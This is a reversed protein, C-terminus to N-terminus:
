TPKFLSGAALLFAPSYVELMTRFEFPFGFLLYLVALPVILLVARRLFLPKDQWRYAVLAAALCLVPLSMWAFLWAMENPSYFHDFLHWELPAGPNDWFAWTLWARIAGYILCQAGLLKWFQFREMREWYYLVFVVVLFVSTEKNLSTFFLGVLYPRWKAQALLALSLTFLTLQPLDYFQGKFLSFPLLLLAVVATWPSDLKPITAQALSLLALPYAALFAAIGVIMLLGEVPYSEGLDFRAITEGIWPAAIAWEGVSPPVLRTVVRVTQPLLARYVFPKHATGYVMGGIMYRGQDSTGLGGFRMYWNLVLLVTLALILNGLTPSVRVWLRYLTKM